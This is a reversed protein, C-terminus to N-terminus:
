RLPEAPEALKTLFRALVVLGLIEVTNICALSKLWGAVIRRLM